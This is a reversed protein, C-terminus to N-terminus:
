ELVGEITEIASGEFRNNVFAYFVREDPVFQEILERLAQRGEPYPDKTTEYPSFAEVAQAYTRGPKLLWRSVVHTATFIGPMRMQEYVPPMRTWSNLVHAVNHRRLVELYPSGSDREKAADGRRRTGADNREDAKPLFQPNRVEVAMEFRECPLQALMRDLADAFNAPQCLDSNHIATFEFIVPGLKDRFPELRDLLLARVLQPNMFDRNVEGAREGYRPQRPFREMTVVDPVKLAFKYGAPLREFIGQWMEDTPFQYFAFDGCVTPFVTAYEALCDNRFKRESLRGRIAYRGPDYVQGLWGPYKWSSTGIYVGRKALSQVRDAIWAARALRTPPLTEASPPENAFGFTMQEDSM